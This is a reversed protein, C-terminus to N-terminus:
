DFNWGIEIPLPFIVKHVAAPGPSFRQFKKVRPKEVEYNLELKEPCDKSEAPTQGFMLNIPFGEPDTLTFM